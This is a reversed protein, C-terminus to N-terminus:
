SGFLSDFFGRKPKSKSFLSFVKEKTKGYFSTEKKPKEKKFFSSVFGIAFIVFGIKSFFPFFGRMGWSTLTAFLSNSAVNGILSQIFSAVSGAAVGSQTFGLWTGLYGFTSLIGGFYCTKKGM